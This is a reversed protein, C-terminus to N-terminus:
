AITIQVTKCGPKNCTFVKPSNSELWCRRECKKVKNGESDEVEGFNEAGFIKEYNDSYSQSAAKTAILDGTIDNIAAM